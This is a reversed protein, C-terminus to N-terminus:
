RLGSISGDESLDIQEALPNKPLGPMTVIDGMYAIVFGAGAAARIRQVRCVFGSPRGIKTQDDSLSLPTKAVCVPRDAMGLKEMELLDEAAAPEFEVGAGGYIKRVIIDLKEQVTQEFAYLPRSKRELGAAAEVERALDVAGASGDAFCTSVAFSLGEGKCFEEVVGIEEKSDSPFRNLAVVPVLGLERVNEVHKALNQLGARVATANQSELAEKPVGGHYKLAKVTAVLVAVNVELGGIRAVIDVFKEAGLDSAFGAEVVCYDALKLGLKISILSSTGHAINAFPGGHVLAPTGEVTQVLNPAFADKLLVSMAGAAKLMSATVPGGERDFAVIIRGLREKLDAYGSSLGHIAMVESAATIMFGAEHQVGEKVEGIGVVIRRLARDNMDVVRPWTIRKNDIGLQNGQFIHNDIMASLLNHSSSIADIDGTFHLNIEQMPEVTCRGGGAAGGKLGFTPGLSPQRVCVVAKKGALHLAMGLGIATVTKGEGLPTPTMATVLVLRGKTSGVGIGGLSEPDIKAMWPGRLTLSEEPVGLESAVEVIPKM